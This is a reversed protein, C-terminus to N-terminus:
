IAENEIIHSLNRAAVSFRSHFIANNLLSVYFGQMM